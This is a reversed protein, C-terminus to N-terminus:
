GAGACGAMLRRGGARRGCHFGRHVPRAASPSSSTPTNAVPAPSPRAVSRDQGSQNRPSSLGGGRSNGTSSGLRGTRIAIGAILTSAGTLRTPSASSPEMATGGTSRCLSAPQNSWPGVGPWNPGAMMTPWASVRVPGDIKWSTVFSRGPARTSTVRRSRDTATNSTFETSRNLLDRSGASRTYPSKLRGPRRRIVQPPSHFPPLM